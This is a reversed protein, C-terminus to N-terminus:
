KKLSEVEAKLAKNEKQLEIMHLTLEEVKELLLNSMQSVSMGNEAIESASPVGPLHKNEKVFSEVEDLSKLDYNEDFVYDAANNLEVNIDGAKIQNAKLVEAVEIEDHCTIKGWVDLTGNMTAGSYNLTLLKRNQTGFFTYDTAVAEFSGNEKGGYVNMRLCNNTGKGFNVGIRNSSTQNYITLGNSITNSTGTATFSGSVSTAALTSKGTVSLTSSISCAKAATFGGTLTSKGTVSLTNNISCASSATFGGALTAKGVLTSAGNLYTIGDVTLKSKGYIDGSATVAALYSKGSVTLSSSGTISSSVKLTGNLTTAGKVYLKSSISSSTPQMGITVNSANGTYPYAYLGYNSNAYWSQANAATVSMAVGLTAVLIKKLEM